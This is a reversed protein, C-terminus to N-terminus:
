STSCGSNCPGCQLGAIRPGAGRRAVLLEDTRCCCRNTEVRISHEVIAIAVRDGKQIDYRKVLAAGLTSASQMVETFSWRRDNDILCEKDGHTAAFAYYDRLSQPLGGFVKQPAGDVVDEQVPFPGEPSTISEIAAFIEPYRM